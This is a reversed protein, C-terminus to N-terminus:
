TRRCKAAATAPGSPSSPSTRCTGRDGAPGEIAVVRSAVQPWDAAVSRMAAVADGPAVLVAARHGELLRLAVRADFHDPHNHTVLAATVGDFPATGNVMRDITDPSPARYAPNPLDFLADILIKRDGTAVLVGSNAVHTLVLAPRAAPPATQPPGDARAASIPRTVGITLMAAVVIFGGIALARGSRRYGASRRLVLVQSMKSKGSDEM